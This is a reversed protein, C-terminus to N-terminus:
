HHSTADLERAAELLILSSRVGKLVAQASIRAVPTIQPVDSGLRFADRSTKGQLSSLWPQSLLARSIAAPERLRQLHVGRVQGNENVAIVVEIAGFQGRVRQVAVRGLLRPGAFVHHVYLPNEEPAPWRGLRARLSALMASLIAVRTEFRTATPFFAQMDVKPQRWPCLPAGVARRATAPQYVDPPTDLISFLLAGAASLM